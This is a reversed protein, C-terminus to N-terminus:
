VRKGWRLGCDGQVSPALSVLAILAGITGWVPQQVNYGIVGYEVLEFIILGCGVAFAGFWAWQRRQLLGIAVALPFVGLVLLLLLGPIRYDHFPSDEIYSLPMKLLDGNPRAALAAGGAIGGLAQLVLLGFLVWTLAPRRRRDAAGEAM